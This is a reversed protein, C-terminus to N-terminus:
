RSYALHTPPTRTSPGAPLDELKNPGSDKVLGTRVAVKLCELCDPILSKSKGLRQGTATEQGPDMLQILSIPQIHKDLDLLLDFLIRETLDLRVYGTQTMGTLKESGLDTIKLM